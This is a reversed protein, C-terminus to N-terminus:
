RIITNFQFVAKRANGTGGFNGINSWLVFNATVNTGWTLSANSVITLGGRYDVHTTDFWDRVKVNQAAGSGRNTVTIRYTITAGPIAMDDLSTSVMAIQQITKSVGIIPASCRVAFENSSSGVLGTPDNWALSNTVEDGWGMTPPGGYEFGNDGIYNTRNQHAGTTHALLRWRQWSSDGAASSLTVRFVIRRTAGMPIWISYAGIGNGSGSLYPVVGGNNTYIGWAWLGGCPANSAFNDVNIRFTFANNGLNSLVSVNSQVSSAAVNSIDSSADWSGGVIPLVNTGMANSVATFNNGSIVVKNTVVDNYTTPTVAAFGYTSFFLIVILGTIFLLNAKLIRKM